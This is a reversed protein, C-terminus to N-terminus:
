DAGAPPLRQYRNGPLSEVRAELELMLLLSGLAAPSYGTRVVLEDLTAPDHGLEHLVRRREPDKQLEDVVTPLASASFSSREVGDEPGQATLRAALEGGLMRAAPALTEVIEA